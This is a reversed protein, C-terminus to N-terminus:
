NTMILLNILNAIKFYYKQRDNGYKMVLNLEITYNYSTAGACRVAGSFQHPCESATASLSSNVLIQFCSIFKLNISKSTIFEM